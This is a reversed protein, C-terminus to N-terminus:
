ALLTYTFFVSTYFNSVKFFCNVYERVIKDYSTTKITEENFTSVKLADLNKALIFQVTRGFFITCVFWWRIIGAM